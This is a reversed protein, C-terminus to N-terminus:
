HSVLVDNTYTRILILFVYAQLCSILVELIFILTVIFWPVIAFSLFAPAVLILLFSFNILTKLLTHGAMMNALLRIASSFLRAIYSVIEILVLLPVIVIPTGSPLFLKFFNLFGINYIAIINIGIFYIFSFVFTLIFSSTITFSFPLLGLCNGFLLCLFLFYYLFILFHKKLVINSFVILSVFSILLNQFFSFVTWLKKNLFVNKQFHFIKVLLICFVLYVAVNSFYLIFSNNIFLLIDFQALPDFNSILFFNFSLFNIFLFMKKHM